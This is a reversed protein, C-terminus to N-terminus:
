LGYCVEMLHVMESEKQFGMVCGVDSGAHQVLHHSMLTEWNHVRQLGYYVEMMHV